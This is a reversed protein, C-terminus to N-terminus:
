ALWTIAECRRWHRWVCPTSGCTHLYAMDGRHPCSNSLYRMYTRTHTATPTPIFHPPRGGGPVAPCVQIHTCRGRAVGISIVFQGGRQYYRKVGLGRFISVWAVWKTWVRWSNDFLEGHIFYACKFADSVRSSYTSCCRPLSKTTFLAYCTWLPYSRYALM